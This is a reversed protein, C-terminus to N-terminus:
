HIAYNSRNQYSNFHKTKSFFDQFHIERAVKGNTFDEQFKFYAIATQGSFRCDVEGTYYPLGTKLNIISKLVTQIQEVESGQSGYRISTSAPKQYKNLFDSYTFLIFNFYKVNESKTVMEMFKQWCNWATNGTKQKVYQQPQGLITICGSSSYKLQLSATGYLNSDSEEPETRAAHLNDGALLVKYKVEKWNFSLRKKSKRIQPIEVLAYTDMLLADHRQFSNEHRPHIGRSLEYNGPCLINYTNLSSPHTFLYTKSPLTSGPFLAIKNIRTDWLGITCRATEYNVRVPKLLHSQKFDTAVDFHGHLVAQPLSGRIAFLIHHESALPYQYRECLKFLIDGEIIM